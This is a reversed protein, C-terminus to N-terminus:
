KTKLENIIQYIHYWSYAKIINESEVNRNYQCDFKITKIEKSINKINTPSDEIMIDINNEKCKNLKDDDTTFFIKDYEINNTKLWKITEEQMKGYYEEPMGSENRATIICITNGEERLKKIIESAYKRPMSNQVYELLYTDWFEDEQEQTWHFKEGEFYKELNINIDINKEICMKTGCDLAFRELDLLVGDIDVGINM